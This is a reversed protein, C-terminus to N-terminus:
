REALKLNRRNGRLERRLALPNTKIAGRWGQITLTAKPRGGAKEGNLGDGRNTRNAVGRGEELKERSLRNALGKRV